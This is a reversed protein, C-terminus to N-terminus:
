QYIQTRLEDKYGGDIKIYFKKCDQLRYDRQSDPNNKLMEAYEDDDLGLM